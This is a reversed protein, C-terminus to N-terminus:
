IKIPIFSFIQELGYFILGNEAKSLPVFEIMFCRFVIPFFFGKGPLVISGIQNRCTQNSTQKM